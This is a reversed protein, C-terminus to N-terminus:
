IDLLLIYSGDHSCFVPFRQIENQMNESRNHLGTACVSIIHGQVIEQGAHQFTAFCCKLM